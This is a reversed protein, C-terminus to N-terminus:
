RGGQSNSSTNSTSVERVVQDVIVYAKELAEDSICYPPMMYLVRGLPRLLLGKELFRERMFASVSSFYNNEGFATLDAAVITGCVRLNALGDNSSWFQDILSRHLAEMRKYKIEGEEMLDMSACAAACAIPNATYSHGHALMDKTEFSLFSDYIEETAVTAALPLFGGTIGKSLCIIDPRTNCRSAAFWDGTRGFGTMVEDYIILVNHERCISELKRMFDPSCMRMGSAGQVLPEIILAAFEEPEKDLKEILLAVSQAEREAILTNNDAQYPFPIFEVALACGSQSSHLGSSAGIAMSGFTDGHYGGELALFRKRSGIGKNFWYQQAMKMAVEVATSGDDSFFVRNLGRPLHQVLRLALEEAPAHTFGAFIVHELSQAQRHIADVIHPHCHGHLNTWWSSILDLLERGDELQLYAGKGSAVKLAPSATKMQTYPRWIKAAGESEDQCPKTLTQM